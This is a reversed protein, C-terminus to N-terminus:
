GSISTMVGGHKRAAPKTWRITDVWYLLPSKEKKFINYIYFYYKPMWRNNKMRTSTDALEKEM